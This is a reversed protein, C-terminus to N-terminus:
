ASGEATIEAPRAVHRQLEKLVVDIGDQGKLAISQASWQLRERDEATLDKNTWVIVPTDRCGAIERFRDLFEFGDIEPMLLDLVIADFSSEAAAALGSKGGTHCVAEYRSSQLAVRAIKLANPDDDVVLVKKRAGNSQVGANKLSDILSQPSLPKTLYDQVPFGRAMEKEAVVTVVIVPTHQNAGEMRMSHLVDWGIMDPLILDLLIVSYITAKAKALAEAGTRATDLSHGEESLIKAIWQLDKENDEVVLVNPSGTAPAAIMHREASTETKRATIKPLVAYFVSGQGVISQVGVRGVQAEVIKKTLALGLGTGQHKKATSADLQQFETFLKSIQDPNIGIGTDEVELRFHASDEPLARLTIRGGDPTFKIANSLYNYLVQKLKAPDIILHEVDPSVETEVTLRKSASLTQLITRVEAIIKTSSVPEPRFEMKGSEVKALDLVDNILQLLHRASTLIDGLYEKHDTAIPGVKGDHMLQSFGIIANLPTRLEHSMNALFESKLRNAQQVKRYQTELLENKSRLQEELRKRDTIDRISSTVLIGDETELPSLSIEIPFESGDKRRGYLSLNAGMPRMKANRFYEDRHKPHKERFREPMLFEVPNGLLEQRTYGFLQEVQANALVIKGEKDAIVLGDPASEVLDRFKREGRRRYNLARLILYAVCSTALGVLFYAMLLRTLSNDRLAFASSQAQQFIIGWGYGPIPEYAVVQDAEKAVNVGADVGRQGQLAKRVSAVNSYDVIEADAAWRPHAVTRGRRDVVFLYGNAGTEISRIWSLFTGTKIQLVLIGAMEGNDNTIPTAQAIVNLYPKAGRRYVESIYPKGTATVGRYWDFQARSTGRIGPLEPTDAMLTGAADAIFLREIFPFDRPVAAVIKIADQWKGSEVLQRFRVRTALSVGLDTLRNLKEELTAAALSVVAQKRSLESTTLEQETKMYSHTAVLIVPCAMFLSVVLVVLRSNQSREDQVKERWDSIISKIKM